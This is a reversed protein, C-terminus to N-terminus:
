SALNGSRTFRRAAYEAPGFALERVAYGGLTGQPYRHRNSAAAAALLHLPMSDTDTITGDAHITVSANGLLEPDNALGFAWRRPRGTCYLDLVIVGGIADDLTLESLEAFSGLDVHEGEEHDGLWGWALVNARWEGGDDERKGIEVATLGHVDMAEAALARIARQHERRLKGTRNSFLSEITM